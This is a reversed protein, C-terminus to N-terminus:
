VLRLDFNEIKAEDQKIKMLFDKLAAEAEKKSVFPGQDQYDRALFYWKDELSYFRGSQAVNCSHENVLGKKYDMVGNGWVM